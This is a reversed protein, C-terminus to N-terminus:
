ACFGYAANQSNGARPQMPQHRKRRYLAGRVSAPYRMKFVVDWFGNTLGYSREMGNPSHHYFHHRKIYRFYRSRFNYFHVFHHIWEELISYQVVAALLLPLTHVSAMLSVPAAVVFLPLPDRLEGNIHHGDFPHAHHEWHLLDLRGHLFKRILGTGRGHLIFCHFLHKVFTGILVSAAYFIVAVVPDVSRLAFFLM